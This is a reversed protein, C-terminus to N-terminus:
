RCELGCQAGNTCEEVPKDCLLDTGDYIRCAAEKSCNM